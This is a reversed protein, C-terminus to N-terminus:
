FRVNKNFPSVSVFPPSSPRTRGLVRVLCEDRNTFGAAFPEHRLLIAWALRRSRCRGVFWHHCHLRRAANEGDRRPGPRSDALRRSNGTLVFVGTTLGCAARKAAEPSGLLQLWPDLGRAAWTSLLDRAVEDSRSSRSSHHHNAKTSTPCAASSQNAREEVRGPRGM